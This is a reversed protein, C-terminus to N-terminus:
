AFRFRYQFKELISIASGLGRFSFFGILGGIDYEFRFCVMLKASYLILSLRWSRWKTWWFNWRSPMRIHDSKLSLCKITIIKRSFHQRDCLIGMFNSHSYCNTHTSALCGNIFQVMITKSVNLLFNCHLHSLFSFSFM